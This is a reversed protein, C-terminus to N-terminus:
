DSFAGPWGGHRDIVEDIERMIRITENLAVVIRQYHQIDEDSLSRGAKKRDYLWKYCVQYGGIHFNWVDLPIGIFCSGANVFLDGKGGQVNALTKKTEGVKRVSRDGSDHFTTIFDDLKTSEMLHLSVLEAGLTSLETYLHNDSTIPIRPFDIKLFEEFLERFKNSFTISYTYHILDKSDLNLDTTLNPSSVSRAGFHDKRNLPITYGRERSKNSVFCDDTIHRTVLIHRWGILSIQRCVHFGLNDNDIMHKMVKPRPRCIFGRSEGTYYTYRVDFPRYQIPVVLERNPGSRQIDDQALCVKWDQADKGLDFKERANEPDLSIFDNVTKWVEEPSWKITLDDRATVIGVSNMPFLDTIKWCKQYEEWLDMNM